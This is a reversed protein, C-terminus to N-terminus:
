VLDDSEVVRRPETERLVPLAAAITTREQDTLDDRQALNALLRALVSRLSEVDMSLAVNRQIAKTLREGHTMRNLHDNQARLRENESNLEDWEKQRTEVESRLQDVQGVLYERTKWHAEDRERLDSIEAALRDVIRVFDEDRVWDVGKLKRREVYPDMAKSM